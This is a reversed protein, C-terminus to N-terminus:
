LLYAIQTRADHMPPGRAGCVSSLATLHFQHIHSCAMPPPPPLSPPSIAPSRRPRRLSEVHSHYRQDFVEGGGTIIRCRRTTMTRRRRRKGMGMPHPEVGEKEKPQNTLVDKSSEPAHPDRGWRPCARNPPKHYICVCVCVCTHTHTHTHTYKQIHTHTHAHAHTHTYMYIYMCVYYRRAEGRM